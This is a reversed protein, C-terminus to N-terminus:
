ARAQQTTFNHLVHEIEREELDRDLEEFYQIDRLVEIDENSFSLLDEILKSQRRSTTEVRM